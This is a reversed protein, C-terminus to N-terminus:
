NNIFRVNRRKRISVSSKARNEATHTISEERCPAASNLQGIQNCVHEQLHVLQVLILCHEVLMGESCIRWIITVRMYTPRMSQPHHISQYMTSLYTYSSLRANHKCVIWAEAGCDVWAHTRTIPLITAIVICTTHWTFLAAIIAAPLDTHFGQRPWISSWVLLGYRTLLM